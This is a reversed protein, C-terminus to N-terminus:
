SLDSLKCKFVKGDITTITAGIAKRIGNSDNWEIEIKQITIFQKKYRIGDGSRLTKIEKIRM